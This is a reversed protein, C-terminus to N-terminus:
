IYIDCGIDLVSPSMRAAMYVACRSFAGLDDVGPASGERRRRQAIGGADHHRVRQGQLQPVQLAQDLDRSFPSVYM